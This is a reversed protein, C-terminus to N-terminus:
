ELTVKTLASKVNVNKIRGLRGTLATIQENSGEVIVSIVYIGNERDPLGMRGKILRAYESLATQVEPVSERNNEIVIGIVGIRKM